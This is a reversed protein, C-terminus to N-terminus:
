KKYTQLATEGLVILGHAINALATGHTCEEVQMFHELAENILKLGTEILVENAQNM